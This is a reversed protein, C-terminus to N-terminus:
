AIEKPLVTVIQKRTKDYVVRRLDGDIELVHVTIRNSQKDYVESQGSQIKAVLKSHLENTMTAGIRELFRVKLHKMQSRQKNM